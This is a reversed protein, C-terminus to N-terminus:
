SVHGCLVVRLDNANTFTPGPVFLDSLSRFFSTSDNNALMAAPDLGASHARVLTTEDVFAGAPDDARGIGGDTGDTDAALAAINKTGQLAAALALAYEQNPGGRGQGRITVTLEGGSLLAVPRSGAETIARRAHDLAVIRAEGELEGLDLVRYGLRGAEVIAARYGDLPKAAVFARSRAFIPDHPKPTENAPDDLAARISEHPALGYHAVIARAEALTSADPITPGSGIMSIDDGPVDSLALTVIEAGNMLAALRGGKVRSIHKRVTNIEHIPVGARLLQRTLDQKEALTIAGAPAILNASAGGSLLFVVLDDPSVASARRMMEATADMGAQDPVPHGAELADLFELKKGYGHRAIALGSLRERAVGTVLYHQEAAEAMSGAAKGAAFIVVRQGQKPTPLVPPLFVAPLVAKVAARYIAEADRRMRIIGAGGAEATM